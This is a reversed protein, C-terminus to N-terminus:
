KDRNHRVRPKWKLSPRDVFEQSPLRAGRPQIPTLPNQPSSPKRQRSRQYAKAAGGCPTSRSPQEPKQQM